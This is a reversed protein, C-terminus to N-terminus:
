INLHRSCNRDKCRLYIFTSDFLIKHCRYLIMNGIEDIHNYLGDKNDGLKNGLDNKKEKLKKEGKRENKIEKVKNIKEGINQSKKELEPNEIRWRIVRYM